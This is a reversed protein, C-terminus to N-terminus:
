SNQSAPGSLSPAQQYRKLIEEIRGRFPGIKPQPRPQSLCYGPPQPNSLIKELTKWHIGTERMIQRKSVNEILVRRRIDTWWHM